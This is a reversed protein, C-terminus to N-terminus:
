FNWMWWTQSAMVANGRQDAQCTCLGPCAAERARPARNHLLAPQPVAQRALPVRKLDHHPVACCLAGCQQLQQEDPRRPCQEQGVHTARWQTRVHSPQHRPQRKEQLFLLILAPLAHQLPAGPLFLLLLIGQRPPLRREQQLAPHVALAHPATAAAREM